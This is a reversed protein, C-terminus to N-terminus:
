SDVRLRVLTDGVQTASARLTDVPVELVWRASLYPRTFFFPLLRTRTAVVVGGGDCFVVDLAFLMGFMHVSNCPELILGQGQALGTRFLLGRLRSLFTDARDAETALVTGRTVNEVRWKM